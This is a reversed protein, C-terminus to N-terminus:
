RAPRNGGSGGRRPMNPMFPNKNGSEASAKDKEDLRKASNVVQMGESLEYGELPKVPTVVGNSEGAVVWVPKVHNGDKTWLPIMKEGRSMEHVELSEAYKKKFAELEEPAIMDEDPTFRTASNSVVLTDKLDHVIFKVDATLYPILIRDPNDVDIEVIYTVVNSTMTADLRIKNVTGEFERDPFADVTFTVKQGRYINGIDAENVASWVEMKKLDPALIFLSPASMSAVVTQGINVVRRIVVGDVPAMIVTYTLNRQERELTAEASELAAESQELSAKAVAVAARTAEEEAIYQDYASEALARGPGLKEARERDKQAQNHRAESQIIDAKSREISAKAEAVSAEARRIDSKILVDDIRAIVEGKKVFSSDDVEKGETDKGFEVIQGGVQAGVEVSEEPELTGTADITILINDKGVPVSSYEVQLGKSAQWANWGWWLGVAVVVFIVLKIIGKM